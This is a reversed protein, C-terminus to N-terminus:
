RRVHNAEAHPSNVHMKTVPAKPTCPMTIWEQPCHIAGDRYSVVVSVIDNIAGSLIQVLKFRRRKAEPEPLGIPPDIDNSPPLLPDDM